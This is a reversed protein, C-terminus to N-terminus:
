TVKETILDSRNCWRKPFVSPGQSGLSGGRKTWRPHNHTDTGAADPQLRGHFTVPHSTGLRSSSDAM